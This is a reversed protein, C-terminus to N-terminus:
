KKGHLIKNNEKINNINICSNNRRKHTVRMTNSLIKNNNKNNIFNRQTSPGNRNDGKNKSKFKLKNMKKYLSVNNHKLFKIGLNTKIKNENFQKKLKFYYENFFSSDLIFNKKNKFFNLELTRLDDYREFIKGIEKNEYKLPYKKPKKLELLEQHIFQSKIEERVKSENKDSTDLSIDDQSHYHKLSKKSKKIKKLYKFLERQENEEIIKKSKKYINEYKEKNKAEIEKKDSVFDNTYNIVFNFKKLNIKKNDRDNFRTSSNFINSSSNNDINFYKNTNNMITNNQIINNIAKKNLITKKYHLYYDYLFDKTSIYDMSRNRTMGGKDISPLFFQDSKDKTNKTDLINKEENEYFKQKDKLRNKIVKLENRFITKFRSTNLPSIDINNNNNDDNSDIFSKNEDLIIEQEQTSKIAKSNYEKKYIINYANSTITKIQYNLEKIIFIIFKLFKKNFIDKDYNINKNKNFIKNYYDQHKKILLNRNKNIENNAIFSEKINSNFNSKIINNITRLIFSICKSIIEMKSKFIEQKEIYFNKYTEVLSKIKEFKNNYNLEKNTEVLEKDKISKLISNYENKLKTLESNLSIIDKSKSTFNLSLENYKQKLKKFKIIINDVDIGGLISYIENISNEDKYFNKIIFKYDNNLVNYQNQKDVIDNNILNVKEKMENVKKDFKLEDDKLIHIQYNLKRIKEMKQSVLDENTKQCKNFYYNLTRLMEEQKLLKSLSIDKISLYKDHQENSIKSLKNETELRSNLRYNHKYIDNYLKKYIELEHEYLIISKKIIETKKSYYTDLHKNTITIKNFITDNINKKINKIEEKKQGIIKLNQNYIKENARLKSEYYETVKEFNAYNTQNNILYDLFNENIIEKEEKQYKKYNTKNGKTKQSNNLSDIIQTNTIFFNNDTNM